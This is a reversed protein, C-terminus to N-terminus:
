QSNSLKITKTDAKISQKNAKIKEGQYIRLAKDLRHTKTLEELIDQDCEM